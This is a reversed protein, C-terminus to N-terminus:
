YGLFLVDVLKNLVCVFLTNQSSDILDLFVQVIAQQVYREGTSGSLTVYTTQDPPFPLYLQQRHMAYTFSPSPVHAAKFRTKSKLRPM